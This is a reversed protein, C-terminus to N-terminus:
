RVGITTKEMQKAKKLLFLRRGTEARVDQDIVSVYIYGGIFFHIVLLLAATSCGYKM